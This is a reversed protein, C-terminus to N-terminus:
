AVERLLGHEKLYTFSLVSAHLDENVTDTCIGEIRISASGLCSLVTVRIRYYNENTPFYEMWYSSGSHSFECRCMKPLDTRFDSVLKYMKSKNLSLQYYKAM